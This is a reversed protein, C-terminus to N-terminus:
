QKQCYITGAPPTLQGPNAAPVWGKAVCGPPSAFLATMGSPALGQPGAAHFIVIDDFTNAGNGSKLITMIFKGKGLNYKCNQGELTAANCPRGITSGSSYAGVRDAGLSILVYYAQCAPLAVDQIGTSDKVCINGKSPNYTASATLKETVAYIFRDGWADTMDEDQLYLGRTPVTGIDVRGGNPSNVAVPRFIGPTGVAGVVGYHGAPDDVPAKLSAPFPYHGNQLQYQGIANDIAAMRAHTLASAAAEAYVKLATVAGLMIIGGILLVILMEILSFGAQIEKIQKKLEPNM